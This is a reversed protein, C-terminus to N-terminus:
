PRSRLWNLLEDEPVPRSIFYGQAVDCGMLRLYELTEEDEVGEAVVKMNLEHGLMICTKVIARAEDDVSIKGVFSKDVKLETFPVKHLQSLSSYGTGFDDISLQLGKLRLRTLIDLSTVLEGMLASETVELILRTPDLKNDELLKSLQEPLTLSTINEASINVSVTITLGKSLWEKEQNVVAKIVWQTLLDITGHREAIEIFSNPYILGHVPHLWRVLAEVGTLMGTAVAIQPQFHLVLENKEIALEIEHPEINIINSNAQLSEDSLSRNMHKRILTRVTDLALPKGLSAILELKHAECLKEASNLVGADHGSVLILAPPNLMGALRRMVQIGDMEPMNLDLILVSGAAFVQVQEFFVSAQTFGKAEFGILEILESLLEVMEAEDDILYVTNPLQM